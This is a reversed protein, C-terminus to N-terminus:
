KLFYTLISLLQPEKLKRIQQMRDILYNRAIDMNDTSHKPSYLLHEFDKLYIDIINEQFKMDNLYKNGFSSNEVLTRTMHPKDLLLAIPRPIEKFVNSLILLVYGPYLYHAKYREKSGRFYCYKESEGNGFKHVKKIYGRSCRGCLPCRVISYIIANELPKPLTQGFYNRTNINRFIYQKMHHYPIISKQNKFLKIFRESFIGVMEGDKLLINAWNDKRMGLNKLLNDVTRKEEEATLGLPNRPDYADINSRQLGCALDRDHLPQQPINEEIRESEQFLKSFSSTIPYSVDNNLDNPYDSNETYETGPSLRTETITSELAAQNLETSPNPLNMMESNPQISIELSGAAEIGNNEQPMNELQPLINDGVEDYPILPSLHSCNKHVKRTENTEIQLFPLKPEINVLYPQKKNKRRCKKCTRFQSATKKVKGCGSCISM